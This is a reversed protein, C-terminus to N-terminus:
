YTPIFSPILHTYSFLLVISTAESFHFSSNKTNILVLSYSLAKFLNM